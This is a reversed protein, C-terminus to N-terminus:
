EAEEAEDPEDADELDTVEEYEEVEEDKQLVKYLEKKTCNFIDPTRVSSYELFYRIDKRFTKFCKTQRHIVEIMQQNTLLYGPINQEPGYLELYKSYHNQLNIEHGAIRHALFPLNIFYQREPHFLPYLTDKIKFVVSDNAGKCPDREYYKQESFKQNNGCNKFIEKANESLNKMYISNNGEEYIQDSYKEMESHMKYLGEEGTLNLNAYLKNLFEPNTLEDPFGVQILNDPSEDISQFKVVFEKFAKSTNKTGYEMQFMIELPFNIDKRLREICIEYRNKSRNQEYVSDHHVKQTYVLTPYVSFYEIKPILFNLTFLNALKRFILFTNNLNLM